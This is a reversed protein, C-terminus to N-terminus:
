ELGAQAATADTAGDAGVIPPTFGDPLVRAATYQDFTPPVVVASRKSRDVSPWALQAVAPMRGIGRM